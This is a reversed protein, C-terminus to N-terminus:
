LPLCLPSRRKRTAAVKAADGKEEKEGRTVVNVAIAEVDRAIAAARAPKAPLEKPNRLLVSLWSEFSRLVEVISGQFKDNGLQGFLLTSNRLLIWDFCM